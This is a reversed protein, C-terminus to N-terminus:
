AVSAAPSTSFNSKAKIVISADRDLINYGFCGTWTVVKDLKNPDTSSAIRIVFDDFPIQTVNPDSLPILQSPVFAKCVAHKGLIATLYAPTGDFAGAALKMASMDLEMWMVGFAVGVIGNRMNSAFPAGAAYLQFNELKNGALAKLGSVQETHILGLYLGNDFPEAKDRMLVLAEEIAECTLIQDPKMVGAGADQAGLVFYRVPDAAESAAKTGVNLIKAAILQMKSDSACEIMYDLITAVAGDFAQLQVLGSITAKQRGYMALTVDAYTFVPAIEVADNAEALATVSGAAKPAIGFRVVKAKGSFPQSVYTPAKFTADANAVVGENFQDNIPIGDAFIADLVKGSKGQYKKVMRAIYESNILNTFMSTNIM